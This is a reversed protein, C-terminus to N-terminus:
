VQLRQILALPLSDNQCDIEIGNGATRSQSAQGAAEILELTEDGLGARDRTGLKAAMPRQNLIGIMEIEGLHPYRRDAEDGTEVLRFRPRPKKEGLCVSTLTNRDILEPEICHISSRKHPRRQIPRSPNGRM